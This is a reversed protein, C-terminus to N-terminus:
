NHSLSSFVEADRTLDIDDWAITQEIKIHSLVCQPSCFFIWKEGEHIRAFWITEMRKGCHSCTEQFIELEMVLNTSPAGPETKERVM